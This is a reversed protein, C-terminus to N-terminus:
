SVMFPRNHVDNLWIAGSTNLVEYQMQSNGLDGNTSKKQPLKEGELMTRHFRQSTKYRKKRRKKKLGKAPTSGNISSEIEKIKRLFMDEQDIISNSNSFV